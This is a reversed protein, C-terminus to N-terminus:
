NTLTTEFWDSTMDIIEETSTYPQSRDVPSFGHKANEILALEAEAGVSLYAAYLLEAQEPPVADDETGNMLLAPPAEADVQWAPSAAERDEASPDSTGFLAKQTTDNNGKFDYTLDTPGYWNVFSQFASSQETYSEVYDGGNEKNNDVAVWGALHGGASGGLIGFKDSDLDYTSANARLYRAACKVDQMMELWDVVTALRYNISVVSIGRAVLENKPSLGTDGFDAKDGSTWGGGHVLMVLPHPGTSGDEAPYFDLQLDTGDATTCYTVDYTVETVTTTETEDVPVTFIPRTQLPNRSPSASRMEQRADGDRAM